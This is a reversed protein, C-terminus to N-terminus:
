SNKQTQPPQLLRPLYLFAIEKVILRLNFIGCCKQFKFNWSSTGFSLFSPPLPPFSSSFFPLSDYVVEKGTRIELFAASISISLWFIESVLGGWAFSIFLQEQGPIWSPIVQEGDRFTGLSSIEALLSRLARQNIDFPYVLQGKLIHVHRGPM